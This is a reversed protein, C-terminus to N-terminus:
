LNFGAKFSVAKGALGLAPYGLLSETTKLMSYHNLQATDRAGAKVSPAIVFMPVHCSQDTKNTACAEGTTGGAGEDWVIFVATDGAAYAATGTILPVWQSLWTDGDTVENGSCGTNGHMDDCLNPTVFAFRPATADSSFDTLLASSTSTGLPVDNTSCNALDTYYVAPNHRPAYEGSNVKSCNSPMSEDYAKWSTNQNFLNTSKVQCSPSPTCDSDYPKLASLTAGDTLGIYNALSHHTINHYNTALGCESALSNLYPASSSGIIGSYSNNEMLIWIVHKYTPAKSVTGCPTAAVSRAPTTTTHSADGTASATSGPAGAPRSSTAFAAGAGCAVLLFSSLALFM